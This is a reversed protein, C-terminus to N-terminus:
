ETEGLIARRGAEAFTDATSFRVPHRLPAAGSPMLPKSGPVDHSRIISSTQSPM